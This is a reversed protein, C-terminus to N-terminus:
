RCQQEDKEPQGLRIRIVTDRLALGLIKEVRVEIGHKQFRELLTFAMESLQRIGQPQNGM